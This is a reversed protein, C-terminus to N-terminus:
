FLTFGSEDEDDDLMQEVRARRAARSKNPGDSLYFGDADYDPAPRDVITVSARSRGDPAGDDILSNTELYRQLRRERATRWDDPIAVPPVPGDSTAIRDAPVDLQMPPTDEVVADDVIVVPQTSRPLVPKPLAQRDLVLPRAPFPIPAVIAPAMNAVETTDPLAPKVALVPAKAPAPAAGDSIYDPLAKGSKILKDVPDAGLTSATTELTGNPTITVRNKSVTTTVSATKTEAAAAPKVPDTTSTIVAASNAKGGFQGTLFDVSPVALVVALGAWALGWTLKSNLRMQQIWEGLAGARRTKSAFFMAMSHVM